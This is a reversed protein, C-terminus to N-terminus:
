PRGPQGPKGTHGGKAPLQVHRAKSPGSRGPPVGVAAHGIAVDLGRRHRALHDPLEVHWNSRKEGPSGWGLLLLKEEDDDSWRQDGELYNNSVVEAAPSGDEFALAPVYRGVQDEAILAWRGPGFVLRGLLGELRTDLEALTMDEEARHEDWPGPAMSPSLAANRAEALVREAKALWADLAPRAPKTPM